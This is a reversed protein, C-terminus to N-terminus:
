QDLYQVALVFHAVYGLVKTNGQLKLSCNLKGTSIFVHVGMGITHMYRIILNELQVRM